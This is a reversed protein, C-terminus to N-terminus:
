KGTLKKHLLFCLVTVICTGIGSILFWIHVGVLEAVPAGILLGVPMALSASLATLAFARGMKEPPVNTQMYAVLPIGHVNGFAGMFSCTVAFICWAWMNPPLLGCVAAAVGIGFLGLYSVDLQRRTHIVSGFLFAAAMMGLAYLAEVASGHWASAHFYDSTMLPYFSSLPIYFIMCLTEAIIILALPRDDRYVELGEKLETLVHRKEHVTQEARPISVVALMGSAILAGLLDTLLIIPLPFAAYLAAGVAPGLLFSGSMLIQNWAGVRMLEEAPVFQPIMAQIAPQHFINGISRFFLILLATWVPLDFLWLLVAFVAAAAGIFLDAIICIYKRHYRDAAIGAIPSLVAYPLFAALGSLGMMFPSATESAIWWILAFQVASSGILSATQGIAITLFKRKWTQNM